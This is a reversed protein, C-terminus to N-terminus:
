DMRRRRLDCGGCAVGGAAARGDLGRGAPLCRGFDLWGFISGSSQAFGRNIADAAGGDPASVWRLRDGYRRLIDVTGDTSAGDMVIYEIRPYDQALVSEITREIFHAWQFSPTVISVLPEIEPVIYNRQPGCRAVAGVTCRTRMKM